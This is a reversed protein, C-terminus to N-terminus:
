TSGQREAIKIYAVMMGALSWYLMSIQGVGSVTFITILVGILLALLARGVQELEAETEPLARLVAYLKLLIMLFIGSFLSLGVLGNELAYGLYVNVVDVIGQGQLLGMGALEDRFYVSGFWPYRGIVILSKELLRRRYDVNEDEENAYVSESTSFSNGLDFQTLAYVSLIPLVLLILGRYKRAMKLGTPSMFIFAFLMAAVGIWPGRSLSSMLGLILVGFLLLAPLRSIGHKWLALLFGIAIMICYGFVIPGGSISVYARLRGYRETYGYGAAEIDWIENLPAYLHWWKWFEFVGLLSLAMFPLLYAVMLRKLERSTGIAKSMAMYPLLMGLFLNLGQRMTDTLTTDRFILLSALVFLALVMVDISKRFTQKSGARNRWVVPILTLAALVKFHNLALVREMSGFGPIDKEFYPVACILLFFLKLGSLSTKLSFILLTLSLALLYLWFSGLVLSSGTVILWCVGYAWLDKKSILSSFAGRGLWFLPASVM